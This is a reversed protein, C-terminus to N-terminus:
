PRVANTPKTKCVAVAASVALTEPVRKRQKYQVNSQINPGRKKRAEKRESSTGVSPKMSNAQEKLLLDDLVSMKM